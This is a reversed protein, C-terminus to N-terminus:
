ESAPLGLHKDAFDMFVKWDPEGVNHKGPRVHYGVISDILHNEQPYQKSGIAAKGLLEYVPSAAVCAAFEGEPDAWKDGTASCVLAPRPAILSILLHQDLPLKDENDGFKAFEDCFWHPFNKNIVAVTEGVRRRSLAAGGCGSQNSVTLAFRPDLAGALLATKGNRSHGMVCIRKSDINPDQALYDAARSLGWAWAAICGWENAGPETQGNKYYHPHIGDTWDDKKDPDIDGQYFTAIAYGRAIAQEFPWRSASDGRQSEDALNDKGNRVWTKTLHVKPDALTTHNGQFNLGLFIPAPKGTNPTILLLHIPPAAEPGFKISVEKLTAKGGFYDKEERDIKFKINQPAGPARGFMYHEFLRVVEPRRQNEWTAADKVPRGDLMVLPHPLEKSEPLDSFKPMTDAALCQSATIALLASALNIRRMNPNQRYLDTNDLRRSAALM